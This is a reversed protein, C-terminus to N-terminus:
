NYAIYFISWFWIFYVMPNTSGALFFSFSGLFIGLWYYYYKGKSKLLLNLMGKMSIYIFLSGGILGTQMLYALYVEEYSWKFIKNRIYEKCYASIGNGLWIHKNWEKYLYIKQLSRIQNGRDTTLFASVITKKVSLFINEIMFIDEIIKIMGIFIIIGVGIYFLLQKTLKIRKKYYLLFIHLFFIIIISLQLARRGSFFSIILSFVLFLYLFKNKHYSNVGIIYPILFMLSSQNSIRAEIYGNNLIFSGWIESNKFLFDLPLIKFRTLLYLMDLSVIVMFSIILIKNLLKFNNEKIFINSIFFSIIPTVVYMKIIEIDIEYNNLYSISFSILMFLYWLFLGIYKRVNIKKFNKISFVISYVTLMVLFIFKIESFGSPFALFFLFYGLLLFFKM